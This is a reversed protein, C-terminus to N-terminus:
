GVWGMRLISSTSPKGIIRVYVKSESLIPAHASIDPHEETAVEYNQSFAADFVTVHIADSAKCGNKNIGTVTYDGTQEVKFTQSASKDQWLYTEFDSRADM